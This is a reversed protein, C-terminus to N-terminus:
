LGKEIRAFGDLEEEYVRTRGYQNMEKYHIVTNGNRPKGIAVIEICRCTDAKWLLVQENPRVDVIPM